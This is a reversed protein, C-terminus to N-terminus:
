WDTTFSPYLPIVSFLHLKHKQLIKTHDNASHIIRSCVVWWLHWYSAIEHVHKPLNTAQHIINCLSLYNSDHLWSVGALVNRVKRKYLLSYGWNRWSHQSYHRVPHCLIFIDIKDQTFHEKLTTKGLTKDTVM